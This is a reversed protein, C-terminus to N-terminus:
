TTRRPLEGKEGESEMKFQPKGINIKVHHKRGDLPEYHGATERKRITAAVTTM